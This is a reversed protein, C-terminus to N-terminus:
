ILFKSALDILNQTDLDIVLQYQTLLISQVCSLYLTLSSILLQISHIDMFHYPIYKTESRESRIQRIKISLQQTLWYSLLM